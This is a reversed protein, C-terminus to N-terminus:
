RRLNPESPPVIVRNVVHIIGNGANIDVAVVPSGGVQYGQPGDATELPGSLSQETHNANASARGALTRADYRGGVIHRRVLSQLRGQDAMLAQLNGQNLDAFAENTPAFITYPGDGMLMAEMGAARVASAFTSFRPDSMLISGISGRTTTGAGATANIPRNDVPNSPTTDAPRTPAAMGMAECTARDTILECNRPDLYVKRFMTEERNIPLMAYRKGDDDSMVPYRRSQADAESAFLPLLLAAFLLKRM